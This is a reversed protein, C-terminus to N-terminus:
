AAAFTGGGSRRERADAGYGHRRAPTHNSSVGGTGSVQFIGRPSGVGSGASRLGYGGGFVGMGNVHFMEEPSGVGSGASKSSGAVGGFKICIGGVFAFHFMGSPSGVGSGTSSYEVTVDGDSVILFHFIGFPSGVGSGM